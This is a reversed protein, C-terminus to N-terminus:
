SREDEPVGPAGDHREGAAMRSARAGLIAAGALVSENGLTATVVRMALGAEELCYSRARSAARRVYRRQGVGISGGVIILDPDFSAAIMAFCRALAEVGDEVIARAEADGTRAAAFVAAPSAPAPSGDARRGAPWASEIRGAIGAGAAFAEVCGRHGCACRPGRPDVVLHGLEGAAAHAGRWVRGDLMIGTGLGTGLAVYVSSNTGRGAGLASEGLGGSNADDDLRVPVHLRAELMPGLPVMEWDQNPSRIIIGSDVDLPGPTGCGVAVVVGGSRSALERLAEALVDACSDPDRPTPVRLIQGGPRWETLPLPRVTVVAKTAGIDIAGVLDV